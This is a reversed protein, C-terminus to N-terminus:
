LKQELTLTQEGRQVEVRASGAQQLQSMVQQDADLDRGLSQGNISVLRDGPQLGYRQLMEKPATISVIYGQSTRRLGMQRIAEAPSGALTGALSGLANRTAAATPPASAGAPQAGPKDFRLLEESGNRLLVVRDNFVQKLEAGGPLSDGPRYGQVKGSGSREAVFARSDEDPEAVLVGDLRLPLATEAPAAGAPRLGQGQEGFAKGISAPQPQLGGTVPMAPPPPPLTESPVALWALQGLQWALAMAGAALGVRGAHQLSVSLNM